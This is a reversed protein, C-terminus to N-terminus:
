GFLREYGEMLEPDNIFREARKRAGVCWCDFEDQKMDVLKNIM